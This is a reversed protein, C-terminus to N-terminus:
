LVANNSEKILSYFDGIIMLVKKGRPVSKTGKSYKIFVNRVSQPNHGYRVAFKQYTPYGYDALIFKANKPLFRPTIKQTQKEM